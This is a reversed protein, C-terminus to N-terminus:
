ASRTLPSGVVLWVGATVFVMGALHYLEFREGLLVVAMLAGFVPVLNIFISARNAGIMRMGANWMLMACLSVLLALSIIAGISTPNIPVPKVLLSEGIYFPLLLACGGLMIPFLARAPSLGGPLRVYRVSYGAFGLMSGLAILDGANFELNGLVRWTGQSIMVLVGVFAVLIGVVQVRRLRVGYFLWSFLVTLAPQTANILAVNTASTFNLAVMILSTAGVIFGGLLLFARWHTCYIALTARFEVMVIPVLIVVALLWRWFTLGLPPMVEHVSRGIIHNLALFFVSITLIPYAARAAGSSANSDKIM